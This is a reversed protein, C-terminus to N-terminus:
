APPAEKLAITGEYPGRGFFPPTVELAFTLDGTASEYIGTSNEGNVWLKANLTERTGAELFDLRLDGDKTNIVLYGAMEYKPAFIEMEGTSEAFIGSCKEPVVHLKAEM